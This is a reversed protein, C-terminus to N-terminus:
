MGRPWNLASMFLRMPLYSTQRRLGEAKHSKGIEQIYKLVYVYLLHMRVLVVPIARKSFKSKTGSHVTDKWVPFMNEIFNLHGILSIM